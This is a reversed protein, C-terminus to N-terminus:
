LLLTKLIAVLKINLVKWHGEMKFFGLGASRLDSELSKLRRLNDKKSLNYRWSTIIAFSVNGSKKIHQYVRLLSAENLISMNGTSKADLVDKTTMEDMSVFKDIRM